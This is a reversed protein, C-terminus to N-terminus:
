NLLRLNLGETSFTPAMFPWVQLIKLSQAASAMGADMEYSSKRSPNFTVWNLIKSM